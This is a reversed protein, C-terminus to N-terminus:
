EVAAGPGLRELTTSLEGEERELQCCRCGVASGGCELAEGEEYAAWSFM